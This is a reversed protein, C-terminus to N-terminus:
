NRLIFATQCRCGQDRGCGESRCGRRTRWTLTHKGVVQVYESEGLIAAAEPHEDDLDYTLKETHDFRGWPFDTATGGQWTVRNHQHVEDRM